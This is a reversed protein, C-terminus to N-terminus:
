LLQGFEHCLSDPAFGHKTAEESVNVQILVPQRLNAKVNRLSLEEALSITDVSHILSFRGVTKKAKNSQLHGILHWSVSQVMEQPLRDMKDLADQVKNEGFDRLGADYAAIMQADSAYKTVAILKVGHKGTEPPRLSTIESNIKSLAQQIPSSIVDQNMAQNEPHNISQNFSGTEM